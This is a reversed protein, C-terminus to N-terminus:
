ETRRRMYMVRLQPSAPYTALLDPIHMLMWPQRYNVGNKTFVLDDAIYAASHKLENKENLLLLIDGCQSPAAIKYYNSLIYSRLYASDNFRNDPMENCFNFTTWNCDMTPDGPEPPLPFTYLRDRAFKPLLHLLNLEGGQPLAKLADLMPRIDTFRVDPVHSWYAAIKDVDTDPKIALSALVARQRSISRALAVRREVTPIKTMLFQYDGLQSVGNNHYVLEMLLALDDPNVRSDQSIEQIASGPFIWPSDLYMNVDKGALSVYLKGRTNANLSLLLKESPRIETGAAAETFTSAAFADCIQAPSLGNTAFLSRVEEAPMGKFIWIEPQPSAVEETLYEVPHELDINRSILWGWPGSHRSKTTDIRNTMSSDMVQFKDATTLKHGIFASAGILAISFSILGALSFQFVSSVQAEEGQKHKSM